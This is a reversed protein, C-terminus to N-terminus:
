LKHTYIYKVNNFSCFEGSMILSFFWPSHPAQPM